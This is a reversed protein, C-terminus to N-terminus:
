AAASAGNRNSLVGQWRSRETDQFDGSLSTRFSLGEALEFQLFTMGYLKFKYDNRDRELVKAAPNTNSTNSIDQLNSGDGNIDYNDFHRQVAYDGVQVNPYVLTDVYQITNEDHYVTGGGSQRRVLHVKDQKIKEFDCEIWPNQFRGMIISPVNRYLFLWKDGPSINKLLSNEYALNVFPDLSYSRFVKINM